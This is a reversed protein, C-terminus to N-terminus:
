FQSLNSKESTWAEVRPCHRDAVRYSPDHQAKGMETRQQYMYHRQDFPILMQFGGAFEYAKFSSLYCQRYLSMLRLTWITQHLLDEQRVAAARSDKMVVIM